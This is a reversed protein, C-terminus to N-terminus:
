NVILYLLSVTKQLFLDLGIKALKIYTCIGTLHLFPFQQLLSNINSLNLIFQFCVAPIVEYIYIGIIVAILTTDTVHGFIGAIHLM